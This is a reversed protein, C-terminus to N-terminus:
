RSLLSTYTAPTRLHSMEVLAERYNQGALPCTKSRSANEFASYFTYKLNEGCFPCWSFQAWVVLRTPISWIFPSEEGLFVM